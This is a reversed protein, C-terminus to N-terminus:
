GVMSGWRLPSYGSVTIWILDESEETAETLSLFSLLDPNQSKGSAWVQMIM